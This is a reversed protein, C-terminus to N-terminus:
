GPGTLVLPVTGSSDGYNGVAVCVSTSPCAVSNLYAVVAGAGAPLPAKIPTWTTGSLTELLGV